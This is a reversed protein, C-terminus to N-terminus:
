QRRLTLTSWGFLQRQKHLRFGTALYTASVAQAQSALLGSLIATAGSALYHRMAPALRILPEALINAIILDFPRVASFLSCAFGVATIVRVRQAVKNIRINRQAVASARPDSDSAWIRASPWARAAAIALVGSGCGLDLVRHFKRTHAIETIAILCGATTAHHATGFAEGADIEIANLRGRALARHHSGHILFRGVVVMPLATQSVAEWNMEPVAETTLSSLGLQHLDALLPKLPALDAQTPYYAEISFGDLSTFVTVALAEPATLEDILGAAAQAVDL